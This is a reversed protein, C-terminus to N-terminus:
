ELAIDNMSHCVLGSRTHMHNWKGLWWSPMFVDHDCVPHDHLNNWELVRWLPLHLLGSGLALLENWFPHLWRRMSLIGSPLRHM